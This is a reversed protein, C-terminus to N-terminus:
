SGASGQLDAAVRREPDLRDLIADGIAALQDVQEPTLVDIVSARVMAVHGPATPFLGSQNVRLTSLSGRLIKGLKSIKLAKRVLFIFM